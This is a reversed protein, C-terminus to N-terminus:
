VCTWRTIGRLARWHESVTSPVFRLTALYLAAPSFIHIHPQRSARPSFPPLINATLSLVVVSMTATAVIVTVTPTERSGGLIGKYIYRRWASGGAEQLLLYLVPSLPRSHFVRLSARQAPHMCPFIARAEQEVSSNDIDYSSSSPHATTTREDADWDNDERREKRM